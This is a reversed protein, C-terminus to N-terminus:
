PQKPSFQPPRIAATRAARMQGALAALSPIAAIDDLADPWPANQEAEHSVFVRLVADLVDVRNATVLLKVLQRWAIRASRLTDPLQAAWAALSDVFDARPGLGTDVAKRAERGHYPEGDSSAAVGLVYQARHALTMRAAMEPPMAQIAAVAANSIDYTGSGAEEAAKAFFAQEVEPVGLEGVETPTRDTLKGLVAASALTVIEKAEDATLLGGALWSRATTRAQPVNMHRRVLAVARDRTLAPALALGTPDTSMIYLADGATDGSEILKTLVGWVAERTAATVGLLGVLFLVANGRVQSFSPPLKPRKADELILDAVKVALAKYLSPQLAQIELAVTPAAQNPNPFFVAGALRAFIESVAIMGFLAPRSLILDVISAIVERAEEATSAHGSPHACLHRTKLLLRLKAADAPGFIAADKECADILASEFADQDKFATEIRSAAAKAAAPAGGSAAQENLKRRLDDMGAGVAMVVAARYAGAHYCRVAERMFERSASDTITLLVEELDRLM